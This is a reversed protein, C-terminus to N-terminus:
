WLLQLHHSQTDHAASTGPHCPEAGGGRAGPQALQGASHCGSLYGHDGTCQCAHMSLRGSLRCRQLMLRSPHESGSNTGRQFLWVQFQSPTIMLFVVRHQKILSRAIDPDKIEDAPAVVIGCGMSLPLWIDMISGDFIFPMTQFFMSGPRIPATATRYYHLLNVVGGHCVEVGQLATVVLLVRTFSSEVSTCHCSYTHPECRVTSLRVKPQGTSGSTFICYALDAPGARPRLNAVPQEEFQQWGQDMVVVEAGCMDAWSSSEEALLLRVGAQHVMYCARDTPLEPDLPVYYGGAKLVALLAIYLQPCKPLSVGVACNAAVGRGVLWNALPNSARNVEAYSLQQEGCALCVASPSRAAVREFLKHVTHTSPYVEETDNFTQLTLEREAPSMLGLEAIPVDCSTCAAALVNGLHEAMREVTAADFLDTSYNVDVIM